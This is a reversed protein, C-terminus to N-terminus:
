FVFLRFSIESHFQFCACRMLIAKVRDIKRTRIENSYFKSFTYFLTKMKEMFKNLLVFDKSYLILGFDLVFLSFLM